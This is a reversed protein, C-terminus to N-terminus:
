IWPKRQMVSKWTNYAFHWLKKWSYKGLSLLRQKERKLWLMVNRIKQDYKNCTKAGTRDSCSGVLMSYLSIILNSKQQVNMPVMNLYLFSPIHLSHIFSFTPLNLIHLFLFDKHLTYNSIHYENLPKKEGSIVLSNPSLNLSWFNWAKRCTLSSLNRKILSFMWIM